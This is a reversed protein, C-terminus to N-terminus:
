DIDREDILKSKKNEKKKKPLKYNEATKEIEESENEENDDDNNENHSYDLTFDNENIVNTKEIEFNNDFHQFKLNFEDDKLIDTKRDLESVVYKIYDKPVGNSIDIERENGNEKKVIKFLNSSFDTNVTYYLRTDVEPSSVLSNNERTVKTIEIKKNKFLSTKIYFTTSFINLLAKTFENIRENVNNSKLLRNILDQSINMEPKFELKIVSQNEKRYGDSATIERNTHLFTAVYYPYNDSEVDSLVIGENMFTILVDKFYVRTNEEFPTLNFLEHLTITIDLYNFIVSKGEIYNDRTFKFKASHYINNISEIDNEDDDNSDDKYEIYYASKPYFDVDMIKHQITVSNLNKPNQYNVYNKIMLANLFIDEIENKDRDLMSIFTNYTSHIDTIESDFGFDEEEFDEDDFGLYELYYNFLDNLDNVLKNKVMFIKILVKLRNDFDINNLIGERLLILMKQYTIREVVTESGVVQVLKDNVYDIYKSDDFHAIKKYVFPKNEDSGNFIEAKDQESEYGYPYLYKSKKIVNIFSNVLDKSFVINDIKFNQETLDVDKSILLQIFIIYKIPNTNINYSLLPKLQVPVNRLIVEKLDSYYKNFMSNLYYDFRNSINKVNNFLEELGFTYYYDDDNRGKFHPSLSFVGTKTFPNLMKINFTWDRKAYAKENQNKYDSYNYFYLYDNIPLLYKIIDTNDILKYNYLNSDKLNIYSNSNNDIGWNISKNEQWTSDKYVVRHNMIINNKEEGIFLTEEPVKYIRNRYSLNPTLVEEQM